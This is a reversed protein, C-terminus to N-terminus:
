FRLTATEKQKVVVNQVAGGTLRVTYSGPMARVPEGGARGSAVVKGAADVLEFGPQMANTLAADLAVADRADFYSGRGLAAWQRFAAATKPEDVAFGVFHVVLRPTAAVLKRIAAPPDGACTEEGDTIVVIVREGQAAHLDSGAQELSAGIATRAGNKADLTAVTKAAAASSLPALPTLLDTDCSDPARGFVRLAFPTGAPLTSTVLKTLTRRAIEIRRQGGLKQLMSGSADLIVEVSRDTPKAIVAAVSVFGPEQAGPVIRIPAQALTAYSQGLAYRIVYDGPVLPAVIHVPNGSAVYAYVGSETVPAGAKVISIYDDANAPGTWKVDVRSGAVAQASGAVSGQVAGVRVPARALTAYSQGMAYRLEYAGPVDPARLRLKPGKATYEYVAYSKEPAGAQVLTVFDRDNNPGTWTVEFSAGAAVQAPASVSASVSGVVLKQRGILVDGVGLFYRVEYAGPADPATLTVPSGKRTYEYSIYPREADGLAIYDRENDPGTWAVSFQRGAAVQAPAQVTATVAQVQLSVRALTPYPSDAGLVRVEFAGATAPAALTHKGPKDLYFYDQYAGAAADKPVITVFDRPNTSGTVAIEIPAGMAVSTPAQISVAASALAPFLTLTLCLARITM